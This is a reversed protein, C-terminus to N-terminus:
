LFGLPFGEFVAWRVMQCARKPGTELSVKPVEPPPSAAKAAPAKAGPAKAPAKAGPKAKAAKPPM